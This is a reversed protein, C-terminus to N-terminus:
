ARRPRRLLDAMVAVISPLEPIRLALALLAYVALGVGGVVAIRSALAVVGPDVAGILGLGGNLAIAIVCAVLTAAVAKVATLAVGRLHLDPARARLLVLLITAEAWAGIAIALGIGALGLPGGSLVVALVCDVVVAVLGAAVPTRTDQQAYFARAVVAIMAHAVLGLLLAGLTAATADVTPGSIQGHGFLLASVENRLVIGLGAIPVMVFVLLRLARGIRGAYEEPRGAAADRSLTPLLVIGLPVGIVGLPIQLLLFANNFATVSGTGLLSAVATVVVFALQVAGLGIARPAMLSFARRALPETTDVRFAHRYGLRYISPLQVLLHGISGGVVGLAVGTVGLGPALLVTGFIIVVNYVIPAIASEAFKGRSNLVSTAMAGLGLFIPSLLMLRTLGIEQEIQDPAFGPTIVPVIWPALVLIISGLLILAGLMLNTVTAVVKWARQEEDSEILGAVIPIIASSLAGAAVLQFILDPLRFAALFTDVDREPLTNVILLYRIWGLLRSILFAGSVVLGARALARTM